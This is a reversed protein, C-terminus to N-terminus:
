EQGAFFQLVIAGFGALFNVWSTIELGVLNGAITGVIIEVLAVSMAIRISIISALLALGLWLASALWVNEMVHRRRSRASRLRTESTFTPLVCGSAPEFVLGVAFEKVRYSDDAMRPRYDHAGSGECICQVM